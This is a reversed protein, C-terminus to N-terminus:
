LDLERLRSGIQRFTSSVNEDDPISDSWCLEGLESKFRQKVDSWIREWDTFLPSEFLKSEHYAIDNKFTSHSLDDTRINAVTKVHDVSLMKSIGFKSTIMHIDYFHRVRDILRQREYHSHRALALIKELYTRHLDLVNINFESMDYLEIMDSNNARLFRTIYAEISQLGYPYPRSLVSLEIEIERNVYVASREIVDPYSYITKRIDSQKNERTHYPQPTLTQGLVVEIEKLFRLKANRRLGRSNIVAFDIDESFRDIVGYVKSLSTGGKFVM